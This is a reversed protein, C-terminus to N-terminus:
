KNLRLTVCSVFNPFVAVQRSMGCLTQRFKHGVFLYVFFNVSCNTLLFLRAIVYVITTAIHRMDAEDCTEDEVEEDLKVVYASVNYTFLFGNCMIFISVLIITTLAFSRFNHMMSYLSILDIHTDRAYSVHHYFNYSSVTDNIASEHDDDHM